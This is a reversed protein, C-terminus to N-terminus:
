KKNTKKTKASTNRSKIYRVEIARATGDRISQLLINAYLTADELDFYKMEYRARWQAVEERRRVLEAIAEEREERATIVQEKLFENDKKLKIDAKFM